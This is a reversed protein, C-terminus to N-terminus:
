FCSGYINLVNYGKVSSGSDEFCMEFGQRDLRMGSNYVTLWVELRKIAM